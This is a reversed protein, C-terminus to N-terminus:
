ELNFVRVPSIKREDIRVVAVPQNDLTAVADKGMLTSIEYSKPSIGQGQRLKAADEEKVAIVTIDCLCTLIPLIKRQREGVYEINKLNELLITDALSFKGCKTRRLATLYGYTGLSEAIDAGLTRVYTGKSCAVRLRAQSDDIMELLELEFIHIKRKPISINEGQRALDYARKGNIKIASYAPPIQTIEGIFCPLVALIEEKSPLKCCTKTINGTCDFTDTTSGFKLTFEYEKNGNTVYPILKTAEGFAIPLVGTAFPDLTGTHGNKQADLLRRTQNVVDTSGIGEDKDIVLWGSILQGKKHKMFTKIISFASLTLNTYFAQWLM